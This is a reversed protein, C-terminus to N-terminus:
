RGHGINSIRTRVRRKFFLYRTKQELVCVYKVHPHDAAVAEVVPKWWSPPQTTRHANQGDPLHARAPHCAINLFVFRNAYGFIEDLIWAIDSEPCHELVDTSIVGDFKGTPLKSFESVAPDYCTISDIGWFTKLDPIIPGAKLKIDKWKYQLGKGCGYDLLSEAGTLDVIEKIAGAHVPLSNGPYIQDPSKGRQPDGEVHLKEYQSILTKYVLSPNKRSYLRENESM